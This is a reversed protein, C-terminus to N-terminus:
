PYLDLPVRGRPLKPFAGAPAGSSKCRTEARYVLDLAMGHPKNFGRTVANSNVCICLHFSMPDNNAFNVM